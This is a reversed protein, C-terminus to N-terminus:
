RITERNVVVRLQSAGSHLSNENVHVIDAEGVPIMTIFGSSLKKQLATRSSLKEVQVNVVDNQTHFHALQHELKAIQNGSVQIQNKEFVYGLGFLAGLTFVMTWKIISGVDVANKNKKRSSSNM